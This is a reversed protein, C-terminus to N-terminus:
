LRVRSEGGICMCKVAMQYQYRGRRNRRTKTEASYPHHELADSSETGRNSRSGRSGTVAM